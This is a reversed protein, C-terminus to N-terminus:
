REYIAAIDGAHEKMVVNRKVKLSPTLEGTAETFDQALIRFAKIAEAKSVAQNAEDIAKQIEARLQEDGVLADMATDPAKGNDKLWAPLADPDITVLAAIFPQRDGVVM